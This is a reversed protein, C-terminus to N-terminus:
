PVQQTVQNFTGDASTVKVTVSIGSTFIKTSSITATQNEPLSGNILPGSVTSGSDLMQNIYLCQGNQLGVPGNGVNQVYVYTGTTNFAVSQIQIAKGTKNTTFGIYGMVWAYTVLAAVVAVAIM